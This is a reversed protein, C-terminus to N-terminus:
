GKSACIFNKVSIFQKTNKLLRMHKECIKIYIYFFTFDTRTYVLPVINCVM